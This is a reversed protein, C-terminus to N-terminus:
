GSTRFCRLKRNYLEHTYKIYSDNYKNYKVKSRFYLTLTISLDVNTVIQGKCGISAITSMTDRESKKRENRYFDVLGNFNDFTLILTNM